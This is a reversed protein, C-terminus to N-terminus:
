NLNLIEALGAIKFVKKVAPTVNIVSFNGPNVSHSAKICLRLFASAIYDIGDLDFAVKSAGAISDIVKKEIEMCKATDMRGLFKCVVKGDGHRTCEVPM